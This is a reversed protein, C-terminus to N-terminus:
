PDRAQVSGSTTRFVDFFPDSLLLNPTTFEDDVLLRGKDTVKTKDMQYQEPVVREIFDKVAEPVKDSTLVEPFFGKRPLTGFFYHVDYYQNRVPKININSTWKASVKSNDVVSPICAFDFDWLKIQVGINPVTYRVGNVMYKHKSKRHSEIRHVLVNNAKLDNHRFSPYKRLVVALTSLLQFFFVKWHILQFSEYNKRVYDLFDGGNAWESILVSVQNYFEGSNYRQIFDHYRKHTVINHETLCLFPKISTNFTGIPLVIHPTEGQVVFSSLVHLMVLEANEPRKPNNMPGYRERRPYAVVKVACDWNGLVGSGGRFMGKFTHGTSGSKIYLLKCKLTSMIVDFDVKQKTDLVNKPHVGGHLPVMSCINSYKCVTSVLYKRYKVHDFRKLRKLESEDSYDDNDKGAKEPEVPRAVTTTAM